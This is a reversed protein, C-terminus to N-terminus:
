HLGAPTIIGVSDALPTYYTTHTITKTMARGAPDALRAPQGHAHTNPPAGPASTNTAGSQASVSQQAAVGGLAALAANRLFRRRGSRNSDM